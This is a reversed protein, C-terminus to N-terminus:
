RSYLEIVLNPEMVVPYPVELFTPKRLFVGKGNAYDMSIYEPVEREQSAIAEQVMLMNKAKGTIEIVDEPKVQYSKIDVKKGNVLCHGHNVFQRAAFVTPVFKMRYIITDLRSELLGILNEVSDGKSHLAVEYYSHFKKESINGYYFKLKQKAKLQIGYDSLKSAQKHQGPRYSRKVFPSRDRGWLNVGLKRDIKYKATKRNSM